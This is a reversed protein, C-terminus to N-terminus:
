KKKSHIETAAGEGTLRVLGAEEAASVFDAFRKFSDGSSDMLSKEDFSSDIGRMRKAIAGLRLSRKSSEAIKVAELLLEFGKQLEADITPLKEAAPKATEVAPQEQAIEETPAEVENVSVGLFEAIRAPENVFQYQAPSVGQPSVRKLLGVSRTAETLLERVKPSPLYLRRENRMQRCHAEIKLFPAPYPNFSSLSDVILQKNDLESGADTESNPIDPFSIEEKAVLEDDSAATIVDPAEVAEEVIDAATVADDIVVAEDIDDSEQTPTAIEPEAPLHLEKRPGKGQQVIYGKKEAADIFDGFRSFPKEGKVSIEKENFGEHLEVMVNKIVSPHLSREERIALDVSKALLKYAEEVPPQKPAEPEPKREEKKPSSEVKRQAEKYKSDGALFVENVTGTTVLRVLGRRQGEQVFEKFKQFRRGKSDTHKKEDFGGLLEGMMLKVNPLVTSKGDAELEKIAQVLAEYIDKPRKPNIDPLPSVQSYFIFEDVSQALHSSASGDVGIAIVRNGERRVANVLPLFDSDGTLLIFTDVNKRNHLIDMADIAMYMDVANKRVQNDGMQFSPVYVPDFGNSILVPIMASSQRNWDAFARAVVVRGFEKCKDMLDEFNANINYNNRVSFVINEYDFFVAVDFSKDSSNHNM